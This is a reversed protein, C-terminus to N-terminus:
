KQTALEADIATKIFDYPVAGILRHGNVFLVPTGTMSMATAAQM